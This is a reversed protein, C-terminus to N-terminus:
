GISDSHGGRVKYEAKGMEISKIKELYSHLFQCAFDSAECIMKM